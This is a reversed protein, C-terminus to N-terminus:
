REVRMEAKLFMDILLSYHVTNEICTLNFNPFSGELVATVSVWYVFVNWQCESKHWRWQKKKQSLTDSLASHLIVFIKPAKVILLRHFLLLVHSWKQGRYKILLKVYKSFGDPKRLLTNLFDLKM